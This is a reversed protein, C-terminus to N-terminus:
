VSCIIEDKWCLINGYINFSRLVKKSDLSSTDQLTQKQLVPGQEHQSQTM